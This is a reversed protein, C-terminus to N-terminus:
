SPIDCVNSVVRHVLWTQLKYSWHKYNFAIACRFSATFTYDGFKEFTVLYGRSMRQILNNCM